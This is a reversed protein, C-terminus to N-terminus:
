PIWDETADEWEPRFVIWDANHLARIKVTDVGPVTLRPEAIDQVMLKAPHEPASSWRPDAPAERPVEGMIRVATVQLPDVAPGRSCAALSVFVLAGWQLKVNKM